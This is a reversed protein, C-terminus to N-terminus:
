RGARLEDLFRKLTKPVYEVQTKLINATKRLLEEDSGIEEVKSVLELDSKEFKKKKVVKKWKEFLENSRSPVLEKKVNLIKACEDLLRSDKNMIEKVKAGAIFELRVIADSIKTTKLIKIEGIESTNLVHTGGCCEVDVNEINVIRLKSGPVAGGQYISMGYRREAEDRDMFSLNVNIRKKIIRNAEDEILKLEEDSITKYHTIDLTAKETTKKAGAQNIHNGLIKKAASNVVHTATHHFALQLRRTVDIKGDVIQGVKFKPKDKLKHIVVNDQKFVDVVEYNEIKGLDHLQGGSTPYFLSKDLVVYNGIVKLVKGSFESTRYNDFYLRKTEPIDGIDVKVEKETAHEQEQKKHSENVLSYFNDPIKVRKGVKMAETQILEPSIGQSDYLEILKKTNVEETVIRPILQSIKQKTANYKEEEYEIIEKVEKLNISLEPFLPKLYDAHWKCVESFKVNLNYKDIFSLSRRLLVRLNYGGGTNSPLAGDTLAILLARSHEAVSYLGALPMIKGRLENVPVKIKDAVRKWAQEIDSVEDTNLYSAYPLFKSVLEQDVKLGSLKYMKSCVTPFTSEYATNTGQSFWTNRELGMGMDLTKLKLDKYGNGNVEYQMYVQNALELGGSFIEIAPGFKGSGAWVEEHLTIDKLDIKLGKLYWDFLHMLYDNPKYDKPKEFRHQGVMVFASYHSNTIGVNDIDNFRLCFQPVVLPNAPPKIEGSLVYPIFDDISAEVFYIDNRWRATVPYRKIPTYGHRKLITSFKNWTEIYDFKNKAIEKGIFSFGGSCGSDGCVTRNKQVNWFFRGCSKCKNRTYGLSKIFKVPYYKDPNKQYEPEYKKKIEKPTLM